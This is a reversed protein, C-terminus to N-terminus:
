RRRFVQESPKYGLDEGPTSETTPERRPRKVVGPGILQEGTQLSRGFRRAPEASPSKPIKKM